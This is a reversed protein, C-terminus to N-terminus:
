AIEELFRAISEHSMLYSPVFKYHWMKGWNPEYQIDCWLLSIQQVFQKNTQFIHSCRPDQWRCKIPALRLSGWVLTVANRFHTHINAQKSRGSVTFKLHAREFIERIDIDHLNHLLGTPRQQWLIAYTWGTQFRKRNRWKLLWKYDTVWRILYKSRGGASLLYGWYTFSVAPCSGSHLM